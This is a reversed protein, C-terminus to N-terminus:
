LIKKESNNDHCYKKDMQDLAGHLLCAAFVGFKTKSEVLTQIMGLHLVVAKFDFTIIM